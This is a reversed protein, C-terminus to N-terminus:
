QGLLLFEGQVVKKQIKSKLEPDQGQPEQGEQVIYNANTGGWNKILKAKSKAQDHSFQRKDM